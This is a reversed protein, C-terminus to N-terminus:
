SLGRHLHSLKDKGRWEFNEFFDGASRAFGGFRIALSTIDPRIVGSENLADDDTFVTEPAGVKVIRGGKMLAIRDSYKLALWISHTICIVTIGRERLEIVTKMLSTVENYDLGTSPEDLILIAPELALISALALRQREGKNLSYPDEGELGSLNLYNLYTKVKRDIEKQKLKQIKLGFAVEEFLTESFIQHDPDQFLYGIIRCMKEPEIDSPNVGLVEIKGKQPKLFGTILGALTTKGSGNPGLLTFIEGKRITLSVDKVVDTKGDYSFFVSSINIVPRLNPEKRSKKNKYKIDNAKLYDYLDELNHINNEPSLLTLDPPKVGSEILKLPYNLITNARGQNIIKGDKLVFVWDYREPLIVEEDAIIVAKDNKSLNYLMNIIEVRSSSDIDTFPEDLGIIDTGGSLVSAISLRQKEGGSLSSPTRDSLHEIGLMRLSKKAKKITEDRSIGLNSPYFASEYLANTSFLQYKFDQFVVGYLAPIEKQELKHIDRGSILIKGKIDGPIFRPILGAISLLLTSKGSGSGGLILNITSYNIQMNIGSLAPTTSGEYQFSLDKIQLAPIHKQSTYQAPETM